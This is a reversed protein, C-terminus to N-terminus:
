PNEGYWRYTGCDIMTVQFDFPSILMSGGPKGSRQSIVNMASDYIKLLCMGGGSVYEWYGPAIDVGVVYFGSGDIDRTLPNQTPTPPSTNSPRSTKTPLPTITPTATITPSLSPTFTYTATVVIATLTPLATYTPYPTQTPFSTYSPLPTYTSNPTSTPKAEITKDVLAQIVQPKPECAVVFILGIVVIMSKFKM